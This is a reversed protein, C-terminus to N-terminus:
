FRSAELLPPWMIRYLHNDIGGEAGQECAFWRIMQGVAEAALSAAIHGVTTQAGCASDATVEDAVLTSEYKRIHTPNTPCVTYVRYSGGDMRTEILLQTTFRNKLSQEWIQKRSSMTDTLLFVVNGFVMPSEVKAPRINIDTNTKDLIIDRLAEVKFRGIDRIRYAQNAINHAEVRDHDWVRIKPVGLDALFLAAWSGTAGVGIIDIQRGGWLQDDFVKRHRITEIM